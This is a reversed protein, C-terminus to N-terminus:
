GDVKNRTEIAIEISDRVLANINDNRSVGEIVGNPAGVLEGDRRVKADWTVTREVDTWFADYAYAVGGDRNTTYSGSLKPEM